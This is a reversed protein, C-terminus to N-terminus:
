AELGAVFRNTQILASELNASYDSIYDTGNGPVLKIWFEYGDTPKEGGDPVAYLYLGGGDQDCIEVRFGRRVALEHVIRGLIADEVLNTLNM